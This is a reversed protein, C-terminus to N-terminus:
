EELLRTMERIPEDNDNTSVIAKPVLHSFSASLSWTDVVISRGGGEGVSFLCVFLTFLQFIFSLFSNHETLPSIVFSLELSTEVPFAVSRHDDNFPRACFLRPADYVSRPRNPILKALVIVM